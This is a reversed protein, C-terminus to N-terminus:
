STTIPSWWASVPKARTARACRARRDRLVVTVILGVGRTGGSGGLGGLARVRGQHPASTTRVEAGLAACCRVLVTTTVGDVDYDGHVLIRERRDIAERIQAVAAEMGKM